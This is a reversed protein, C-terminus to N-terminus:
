HVPLEPLAPAPEKAMVDSRGSDGMVPFKPRFNKGLPKPFENVCELRRRLLARNSVEEPLFSFSLAVTGSRGPGNHHRIGGSPSIQTVNFSANRCISATSREVTAFTAVASVTSVATTKPNTSIRCARLSRSSRAAKTATWAIRVDAHIFDIIRTYAIGSPAVAACISASERRRSAACDM